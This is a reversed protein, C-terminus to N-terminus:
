HQVLSCMEFEANTCMLVLWIDDYLYQQTLDASVVGLGWMGKEKALTTMKHPMQESLWCMLVICIGDYYPYVMYWWGLRASGNEKALMECEMGLALPTLRHSLLMCIMYDYGINQGRVIRWQGFRSTGNEKALTEMEKAVQDSWWTVAVHLGYDCCVKEDAWGRWKKYADILSVGRQDM